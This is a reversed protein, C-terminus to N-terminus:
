LVHWFNKALIDLIQHHIAKPPQAADIVKIRKPERRALTLYGKRIKEHFELAEKEFRSEKNSSTSGNIREWARSLGLSVPLDLLFTRDPWLEGLVWPRLRALMRGDLGRTLGQYVVTADWFRDSIIGAQEKPGAFHGTDAERHKNRWAGPDGPLFDRAEELGKPSAKDPHDQGIRWHGWLYHVHISLWNIYSLFKDLVFFLIPYAPLPTLSPKTKKFLGVKKYFLGIRLIYLDHKAGWFM